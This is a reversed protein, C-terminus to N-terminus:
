QEKKETLKEYDDKLFSSNYFDSKKVTEAEIYDYGYVESLTPMGSFLNTGLGLREGKIQIGMAALTTPFMDLTSYERNKSYRTGVKSNIFVNYTRYKSKEEMPLTRAGYHDGSLIITTNKYFEQEQIWRIFNYIMTNNCYFVNMYQDDFPLNECTKDLYGETFHTDVTLMTYNFPEDKEAIELLQEKAFEFLKNDEYGWWVYYGSPIKLKNLAEKYDFIEYNGHKQFYDKRGGFTADSGLMLYNQYGNEELIDGLTTLGPMFSGIGSYLNGDIPVNFTIGSTQTVMGAVTWSSNSFVRAGGIKDNESFNINELALKELEPIPSQKMLGGNTISVYDSQMSELYIYILNQKEEPFILEVNNPDVYNYDYFDSKSWRNQLYKDIKLQKIAFLTSFAFLILVLLFLRQLPFLTFSIKKNRIKIELVTKSIIKKFFICIWLILYISITGLLVIIIGESISNLSAGKMNHMYYLLQEFSMSEFNHKLYITFTLFIGSIICLIHMFINIRKKKKSGNAEVKVKLDINKEIAELIVAVAISAITSFLLYKAVFWADTSFYEIIQIRDYMWYLITLAIINNMTVYM